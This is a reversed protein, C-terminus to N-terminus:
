MEYIELRDELVVLLLKEGEAQYWRWRTVPTNVKVLQEGRRGILQLGNEYEVIIGESVSEVAILRRKTGEM